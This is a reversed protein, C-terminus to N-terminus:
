TYLKLGHLIFKALNGITVPDNTQMINVFNFVNAERRIDPSYMYKVRLNNLKPCEYLFHIEDGMLSQDCHTCHRDARPVNFHKRNNVPLKHSGIRFQLLAKKFHEPLIEIYKEKGHSYKFTKYMMNNSDIADCTIISHWLQKFQDCECKYVNNSDVNFDQTAWIYSMGNNQFKKNIYKIWGSSHIDKCHLNYLIDYMVKNLKHQNSKLIRTWYCVMRQKITISLPYRGLEGYIPMNHSFTSVGFIFKCFKTRVKEIIDTNLGM